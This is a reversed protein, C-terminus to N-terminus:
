RRPPRLATWGGLAALAVLAAAAVIVAWAPVGGGATGALADRAPAVAEVVHAPPTRAAGRPLQSAPLPRVGRVAARLTAPATAWRWEGVEDRFAVLDRRPVYLQDIRVHGVGDGVTIRLRLFGPGSRRPGAAATGVEVLAERDGHVRVDACGDRGCAQVREVEKAAAAGALALTVALAALVAVFRKVGVIRRLAGPPEPVKTRAAAYLLRHHAPWQIGLMLEDLPSAAAVRRGELLQDAQVLV